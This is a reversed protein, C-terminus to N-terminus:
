KFIVSLGLTFSRAFPYSLGRERRITSIRFLENTTFNLGLVDIKAKQLWKHDAHKFRYGINLTSLKVENDRMLFRTSQPTNASSTSLAKFHAIDGPHTWRETMARRDLNYAISSNEIKDVLTQNYAVGGWKYSFGLTLSLDRWNLNTSFTGSVTPNTDGVPVKDAANWTFTKKGDRTLYLEKGTIPDIGLSRVMYLTTTSTGEQLTPMPAKTNNLQAENIKKLFESLELIKNSNHMANASITWYLQHRPIQLAIVSLTGSIGRNRLKGANISQSSFGTSPALDLQTILSHTTNNYFELTLNIRNKWLGLDMAASFNRTKAWKLTTNALGAMTAGLTPFGPYPKMTESYTYFEMAQYADSGQEGTIGYSTRFILNSVRGELWKERYANWRLGASWFPTLTKDSYRSSTEASINLDASYRADYSYSLQGILSMRRSVAETGSPNSSMQNGFIFDNMHPDPFGTASLNVYDSRDENM